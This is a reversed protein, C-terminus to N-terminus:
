FYWKHLIQGGNPRATGADVNVQFELSRNNKYLREASIPIYMDGDNVGVGTGVSWRKSLNIKYVGVQYDKNNQQEAIITRDTKEFAEPPMSPDKEQIKEKVIETAKEASPAQIAITGAPQIQGSQAKEIIVVAKQADDKSMDKTNQLYNPNTAQQPTMITEQKVEKQHNVVEEVKNYIKYCFIAFVIILIVVIIKTFNNIIFERISNLIPKIKEM